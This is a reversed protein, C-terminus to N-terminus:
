FGTRGISAQCFCRQPSSPRELKEGDKANRDEVGDEVREGGGWLDGPDKKWRSREGASGGRRWVNEGKQEGM